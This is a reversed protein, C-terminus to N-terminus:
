RTLVNERKRREEERARGGDMASLTKVRDEVSGGCRVIASLVLSWVTASASLFLSGELRRGTSLAVPPGSGTM